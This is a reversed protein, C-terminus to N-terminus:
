YSSKRGCLRKTMGVLGGLGLSWMRRHAFESPSSYAFELLPKLLRTGAVLGLNGM